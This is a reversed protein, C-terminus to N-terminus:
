ITILDSIESRKAIRIRFDDPGYKTDSNNIELRVTEYALQPYNNEHSLHGLMIDSVGDHLVRSILRGCDENCLHGKQGLIRMKLQYPYPGVQLMRIDHNSEVYLADLHDLFDVIADDYIGLDTIIAAKKGDSEFRYACPEMADHSIATTYLDMDKIRFHGDRSIPNFLTEDVAGIQKMSRIGALTGKTAYIPIGYKRSLVGLGGIHDIHEHTVVIADIDKLTLGLSNLGQETRKGSIGADVLIHTADNGIYVCNGSSGSAIARIRM